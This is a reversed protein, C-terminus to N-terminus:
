GSVAKENYVHKGAQLAQRAIEAHTAPATLNVVADIGPHALLETVELAEPVGFEGARARALDMDLDSCAVFELAGFHNAAKLYLPSINGCGVVGLRLKPPAAQANSPPSEDRRKM